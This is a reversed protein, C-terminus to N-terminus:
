RATFGADVTIMSGTMYSAADSAMFLVVRAIEAPDSLRGMPVTQAIAELLEPTVPEKRETQLMPTNVEGPCIANIRIGDKAHELAMARTLNHVAGKSACYAAVGAAAVDGWISGFNVIAGKGQRKMIPLAARCTYFVGGLNVDLVRKWQEDTTEAAGSRAIIGAANILADIRGYRSMSTDILSRCFSIDAIDGVMPADTGIEEAVQHSRASDRGAVVVKYGAKAFERACSAGMGSSAGTIVACRIVDSL